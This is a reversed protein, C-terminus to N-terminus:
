GEQKLQTWFKHTLDGMWRRFVLRSTSNKGDTRRGSANRHQEFREHEVTPASFREGDSRECNPTCMCYSCKCINATANAAPVASATGGVAGFEATDSERSRPHLPKKHLTDSVTISHQHTMDVGHGEASDVYRWSSVHHTCGQLRCGWWSPSRSHPVQRCARVRM